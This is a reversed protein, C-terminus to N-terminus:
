GGQLPPVLIVKEAEPDFATMRRGKGGDSKVHFAAYRNKNVLTEFHKRAAKVEAPNDADWVFKSDGKDSMEAMVHERKPPAVATM